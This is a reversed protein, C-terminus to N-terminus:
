VHSVRPDNRLEDLIESKLYNPIKIVYGELNDFIRTVNAGKSRVENAVAIKTHDDDDGGDTDQLKPNNKNLLVIYRNDVPEREITNISYNTANNESMIVPMNKKAAQTYKGEAENAIIFSNFIAATMLLSILTFILVFNCIGGNVTRGNKTHLISLLSRGALPHRHFM